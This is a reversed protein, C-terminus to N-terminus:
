TLQARLCREIWQRYETVTNKPQHKNLEEMVQLTINMDGLELCKKLYQESIRSYIFVVISYVMNSDLRQWEGTWAYIGAPEEEFLYLPLSVQVPELPINSIRPIDHKSISEALITQTMDKIGTRLLLPILNAVSEIPLAHMWNDCTQMPHIRHLIDQFSKKKSVRIHTKSKAWDMQM